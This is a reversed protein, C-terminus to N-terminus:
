GQDPFLLRSLTMAIFFLALSLLLANLMGIEMAHRFIYAKILVEWSLLMLFAFSLVTALSEEELPGAFLALIPWSLLNFLAGVGVLASLTQVYRAQLRFAKLVIYPFVLLILLSLTMSELLAPPRLTSNLVVVGSIWYFVGLKVALPRAYPLDQPASKMLLMSFLLQLVSM